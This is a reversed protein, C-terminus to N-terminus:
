RDGREPIGDARLVSEDQTGSEVAREFTERLSDGSLARKMAQQVADGALVREIAERMADGDLAHTIAERLVGGGLAREVATRTADRMDFPEVLRGVARTSAPVGARELMQQLLVRGQGLPAGYLHAYPSLVASVEAVDVHHTTVADRVVGALHGGDVRAAALDGITTLVTTVPLGDVLTWEGVGLRRRHLRVQRDRTQKRTRTTFELRDVDLDGLEHVVAASRHSVVEVDTDMLREHAAQRPSLALWAACLDEHLNPPAGAVRYVGHRLRELVGADALRALQQSTLGEARAQATTVLGWQGMALDGVVRIAETGTAM